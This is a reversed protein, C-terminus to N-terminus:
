LCAGHFVRFTMKCESCRRVIKVGDAEVTAIELKYEKNTVPCILSGAHLETLMRRRREETLRIITPDNEDTILEENSIYSDNCLMCRHYIYKVYQICKGSADYIPSRYQELSTYVHSSDFHSPDVKGDNIDHLTYIASKSDIYGCKACKRSLLVGYKGDCTHRKYDIEGLTIYSCRRCKGM